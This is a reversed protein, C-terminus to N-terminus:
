VRRVPFPASMSIDSCAGPLQEQSPRDFSGPSSVRRAPIFVPSIADEMAM